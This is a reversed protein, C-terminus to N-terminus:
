RRNSAHAPDLCMRPQLAYKQNEIIESNNGSQDHHIAAAIEGRRGKNILTKSHVQQFLDIAPGRHRRFCDRVGAVVSRQGVALQARTRIREGRMQCFAKAIVAANSQELLGSDRNATYVICWLHSDEPKDFWAFSDFRQHNGAMDAAAATVDSWDICTRPM